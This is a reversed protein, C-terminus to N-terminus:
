WFINSNGRRALFQSQSAELLGQVPKGWGEFKRALEQYSAPVIWKEHGWKEHEHEEDMVVINLIKGFDVPYVLVAKGPGCFMMSNQAIEAGVKEIAKDMPVLGRYVVSGAFVPKVADHTEGLVYSRLASHIGDAGVVADATASTGDKFQVVIGEKEGKDKINVVRKGFHARQAPVFKVLENLFHARHVSQM